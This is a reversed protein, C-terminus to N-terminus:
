AVAVFDKVWGWGEGCVRGKHGWQGGGDQSSWFAINSFSFTFISCPPEAVVPRNYIPIFPFVYLYVFIMMVIAFLAPSIFGKFLNMSCLIEIKNSISYQLVCHNPDMMGWENCSMRGSTCLVDAVNSWILYLIGPIKNLFSKVSEDGLSIWDKLRLTQENMHKHWQGSSLVPRVPSRIDLSASFSQYCINNAFLTLSYFIWCDCTNRQTCVQWHYHGGHYSCLRYVDKYSKFSTLLKICNLIFCDLLVIWLRLM